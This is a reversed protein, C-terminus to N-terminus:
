KNKKKVKKAKVAIEEEAHAGRHNSNVKCSAVDTACKTLDVKKWNRNM